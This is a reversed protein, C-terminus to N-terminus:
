EQVLGQRVAMLQQLGARSHRLDASTIPAKTVLDRPARWDPLLEPVLRVLRELGADDFRLGDGTQTHRELFGDAEMRRWAKRVSLGVVGQPLSITTFHEIKKAYAYGHEGRPAPFVLTVEDAYLRAVYALEVHEAVQEWTGGGGNVLAGSGPWLVIREYRRGKLTELLYLSQIRPASAPRAILDGYPWHSFVSDGVYLVPHGELRITAGRATAFLGAEPERVGTNVLLAPNRHRAFAPMAALTEVGRAGPAWFATEARAWFPLTGRNLLLAVAPLLWLLVRLHEARTLAPGTNGREPAM